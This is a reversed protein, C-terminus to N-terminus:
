PELVMLDSRFAVLIELYAFRKPKLRLTVQALTVPVQEVEIYSGYLEPCEPYHRSPTSCDRSRRRATAPALTGVTGGPATWRTLSKM